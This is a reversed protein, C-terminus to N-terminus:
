IAAPEAPEAPVESVNGNTKITIVKGPTTVSGNTSCIRFTYDTNPNLGTAQAQPTVSVTDSLTCATPASTGSVYKIVYSTATGGTAHWNVTISSSSSTAWVETVEFLRANNRYVYVAGVDTLDNVAPSQHNNLITSQSSDEKVTSVIVTDGSNSVKFGFYDDMNSNGAKLYAERAWNTGNHAYIYVAGTNNLSSSGTPAINNIIQNGSWDENQAGVVLTEGKLSISNGFGLNTSTLDPKIFAEIAWAGATRKYVYVAGSNPTGSDSTATATITTQSHDEAPVGVAVRSGELSVYRGFSDTSKGNMAKIYAEQSWTSGSRSYIYVAGSSPFSDDSSGLTSITLQNSDEDPAGVALLNGHLSVTQGFHDYDDANNAKIIAERAWVGTTMNRRYVYAAGSDPGFTNHLYVGSVITTFNSDENDIGVVLTDNHLSLASGFYNSSGNFEPKIFSEMSWTSGIRKFIYVAGSDFVTDFASGSPTITTQASDENIVGIAVLDRSIAVTAGFKDDVTLHSAKLYAEQVWNTGTRKFIYAAGYNSTGSDGASTTGNTITTQNSDEMPAGVVMTNGDIAISAGFEDLSSPNSPKIFAEQGWGTLKFTFVETATANLDDQVVLTYTSSGIANASANMRIRCDGTGPGVMTIVSSNSILTSSSTASVSGACNILSDVDYITFFADHTASSNIVMSQDAIATITPPDNVPLINYDITATASQGDNDTVRFSLLHPGGAYDANGTIGVECVGAADCSCPTTVTANVPIAVCSTALDGNVDTYPLNFIHETDENFNVDAFVDTGVPPQQLEVFINFATSDIESGNSVTLFINAVGNQGASPILTMVCNPASGSISIGAPPFLLPNNNVHTVSTACNLIHDSDTIQFPITVTADVNSNIDALDSIHLGKAIKSIPSLKAVQSNCGSLLILILFGIIRM